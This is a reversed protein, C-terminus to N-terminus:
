SGLAVRWQEAFRALKDPNRVVYVRDVRYEDATYEDVMHEDATYDDTNHGGVGGNNLWSMMFVSDPEGNLTVYIAFSGNVSVPHFAFEESVRRALGTLFRSVRAHGVIPHRAARAKAGGDSLLVVDETLLDSLRSQDGSAAARLFAEALQEVDSPDPAFRPREAEIRARARVAIQRTAAPSRDVVPAIEDFPLAFVDHLLFVAREVPNLREMVALFGISVTEALVAVEAPDADTEYDSSSGLLRQTEVPEPLWPGVYSERRRQASRLRDLSLRSTATTLWAAPNVVTSRDVTQWRLWADQMVEDADDAIGLMRYALSWLRHREAQFLALVESDAVDANVAAGDHRNTEQRNLESM